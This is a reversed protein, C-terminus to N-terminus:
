ESALLNEDWTDTGPEGNKYLPPFMIIFGSRLGDGDDWAGFSWHSPNSSMSRRIRGGVDCIERINTERQWNLSPISCWALYASIQTAIESIEADSRDRDGMIIHDIVTKALYQRIAASRSRPDNFEGKLSSLSLVDRLYFNEAHQDIFVKLTTVNSIVTKDETYQVPRGEPIPATRYSRDAAYASVPRKGSSSHRGRSSRRGDGHSTKSKSSIASSADYPVCEEGNAPLSTKIGAAM